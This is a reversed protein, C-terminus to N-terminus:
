RAALEARVTSRVIDALDREARWGLVDVARDVAAVVQPPDGVRRGLLEPVVPVGTAVAFADLVELVSSGVGTGINLVHDAPPGEADRAAGAVDAPAAVHDLAAVHAHALDLVHVYDRVCTGDPTPHDSGFVLPPLGARLRRLVLPVLNQAAPDHLDDWGAGAVNFYRLSLCALGWARAADRVLWEGALKTEGYPNMPVTPSAETVLASGPAGYVAASSSFVLSPVDAQEMAELVHALGGVNQRYYWTPRAVSEDVRKRAALHIVARAGVEVFLAALREVTSDAALDAVELRADGVREARGASLDDVVVVEDGRAALLRVIHAGIYGAGGTVIVTM